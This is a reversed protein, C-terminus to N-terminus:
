SNLYYKQYQTAFAVRYHSGWSPHVYLAHYYLINAFVKRRRKSYMVRAATQIASYWAKKEVPNTVKPVALKYSSTWSFQKPQAIVQCVPRHEKESRNLAVAAVAERDITSANRAEYFVNLALCLLTSTIV